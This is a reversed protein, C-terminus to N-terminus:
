GSREYGAIGASADAAARSAVWASAEQAIQTFSTGTARVFARDLESSTFPGHTRGGRDFAAALRLVAAVGGHQTAVVHVIALADGYALRIEALNTLGWRPQTSRWRRESPYGAQYAAALAGLPELVGHRAAYRYEEYSAAGEQLSRPLLHHPTLAGTMAAHTLEHVIIAARMVRGYASWSPLDVVIMGNTSAAVASNPFWCDCVLRAAEPSSALLAAPRDVSRSHGYRRALGPAAADLVRVIMRARSVDDISGTLATGRRGTVSVPIRLNILGGVAVRGGRLEGIVRWSGARNVSAFTWRGVRLWPSGPPRGVRVDLTVRTRVPYAGTSASRAVVRHEESQLGTLWTELDLLSRRAAPGGAATLARAASLRHQTLLDIYARAVAAAQGRDRATVATAGTSGGTAPVSSGATHGSDNCGATLVAISTLVLLAGTRV